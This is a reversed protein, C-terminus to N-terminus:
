SIRFIRLETKRDKDKGYKKQINTFYDIAYAILNALHHKVQEMKGELALINEEAKDRDYRSIRMFPLETLRIIDETTVERKLNKTFPKLAKDIAAYVEEKSNKGKIEQYIENEIFIRELSAFHWKEELEGLEIELEKKLLSVTHDTNRRLIESVTLFEPKDGVIVCANPSISVECDTFAYLADITKDPSVDNNLLINIEVKDSTNDEIKKIKIKGKENAKIISDIL